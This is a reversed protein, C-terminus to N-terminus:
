YKFGADIKSRPAQRVASNPQTLYYRSPRGHKAVKPPRLTRLSVAYSSTLLIRKHNQLPADKSMPRGAYTAQLPPVIAIGTITLDSDL